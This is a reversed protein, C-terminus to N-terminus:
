FRVRNKFVARNSSRTVGEDNTTLHSSTKNPNRAIISNMAMMAAIKKWIKVHQTRLDNDFSIM